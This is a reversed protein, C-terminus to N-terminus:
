SRRWECGGSIQLYEGRNVEIISPGDINDNAIISNVAGSLNRDREWYCGSGDGQGDTRYQGPKIDVGVEYTGDGVAPKPPPTYTITRTKTRTAIVKRVIPQATVTSRVDVTATASVTATVTPAPQTAPKGSGGASAAGIGVGVLAAVLAVFWLSKWWRNRTVSTPAAPPAPPPPYYTM